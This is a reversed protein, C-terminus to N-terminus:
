GLWRLAAFAVGALAAAAIAAALMPRQWGRSAQRPAAAAAAPPHPRAPPAASAERAAAPRRPVMITKPFSATLRERLAAMSPPRDEPRVALGADIAELLEPGYRGAGLTAAPPMEDRVARAVASPPSRLAISAYLVASLAYVDTWPGQRSSAEGEYQEIPSYGTKLLATLAQTADGIVRRASGFDLLMPRPPQETLPGADPGHLLLINDPAVDRHLCQQAHLVGLADTLETALRRLWPEGPPVKARRLVEHLTTGELLPMQMYATGNDAWVRQVKVLAPHDFSALLRAEDFFSRLGHRFTPLHRASRAHVVGNADRQAITAPMYEKVALLRGLQLDRVRYVISYGGTGIVGEIRLEQLLHGVPLAADIDRRPILQTRDDPPSADTPM